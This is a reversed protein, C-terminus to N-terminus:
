PYIEDLIKRGVRRRYHSKEYYNHIDLTIENVGSYDYVNKSGFIKEIILLDKENIKKQDFSGEGRCAM